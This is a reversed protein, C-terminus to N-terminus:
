SLVSCKKELRGRTGNEYNKMDAQVGIQPPKNTSKKIRQVQPSKNTLKKIRQVQPSKNTSKKIRQVQPSKNKLVQHEQLTLLRFGVIKYEDALWDCYAKAANGNIGMIVDSETLSNYNWLYKADKNANPAHKNWLQPFKNPL